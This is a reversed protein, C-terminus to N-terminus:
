PTRRERYLSGDVASAMNGVDLSDRLFESLDQAYKYPSNINDRYALFMVDINSQRMLWDEIHLVHERFVEIIRIASVDPDKKGLRRLMMNQSAVIEELDRRMFILKYEENLPLHYLLLSIIKVAKGRCKIIWSSDEKIKKVTEYEYYGKPNNPDLQRVNDFVLSVGGAELMQMAMSTGSRPLGSVIIISSKKFEKKM